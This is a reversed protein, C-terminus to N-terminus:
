FSASTSDPQQTELELLDRFRVFVRIPGQIGVNVMYNRLRHRVAPTIEQGKPCLLTGHISRVDEALIMGDVLQNVRVERVAYEESIELAHKLAEVVQPDYWGQRQRLHVFAMEPQLGAAMLATWDLAVKLIRAGLPIEQGARFDQPFGKGNYLKEQYGIIEAVEELRPINRILEHGVKPHQQYLELEDPSLSEGRYVKALIKEPVTICGIQCLAAAIEVAWANEVQLQECIKHVIRRVESSRGFAQPKLMALVDVLVKIAGGVTQSLLQREAVLLRHQELGSELAKAFDEPSCPKSLFRFIHGENVAQVATQLDANGTLMMRVTLPAIQKVRVLLEIGNMGPMRMDAVIVAYPGREAIARLAEEGGLALDLNFRKRLTRRYAELINPEDDVCLIKENM